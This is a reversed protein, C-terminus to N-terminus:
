QNQCFIFGHCDHKRSAENFIFSLVNELDNYPPGLLDFAICSQLLVCFMVSTDTFFFVCPLTHKLGM